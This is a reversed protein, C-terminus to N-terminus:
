WCAAVDGTGAETRTGNESLTLTGCLTDRTLQAGIPTATLTYTRATLVNLTITYRTNLRGESQCALANAGAIDAGTYSLNTTYYRELYQAAESLCAKASSRYTKVMHSQYGPYAIAALIGIIAVVIMLEILTFGRATRTTRNM